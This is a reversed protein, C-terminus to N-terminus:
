GLDEEMQMSRKYEVYYYAATTLTLLVDIIAWFFYRQPGVKFTSPKQSFSVIFFATFLGTYCTLMIAWYWARKTNFRMPLIAYADRSQIEPSTDSLSIYGQNEKFKEPYDIKFLPTQLMMQSLHLLALGMM